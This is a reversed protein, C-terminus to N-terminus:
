MDRASSNQGGVETNRFKQRCVQVRREVLRRASYIDICCVDLYLKQCLLIPSFCQAVRFYLGTTNVQWLTDFKKGDPISLKGTRDMDIRYHMVQGEHLLCLAYSKPDRQRIRCLSLVLLVNVNILCVHQLLLM